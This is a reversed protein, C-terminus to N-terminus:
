TKDKWVLYEDVGVFEGMPIWKPIEVYSPFAVLKVDGGQFCPSNGVLRLYPAKGVMDGQSSYDM